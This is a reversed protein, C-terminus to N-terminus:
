LVCNLSLPDDFMVTRFGHIAEYASGSQHLPFTDTIM